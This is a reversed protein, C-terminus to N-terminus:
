ASTNGRRATAREVASRRQQLSQEYRRFEKKMARDARGQSIRNLVVAVGAVELRELLQAARDLEQKTTTSANVVLVTADVVRALYETNASIPLPDADILVVDCQDGANHLAWIVPDPTPAEREVRYGPYEHVTTRLAINFSRTEDAKNRGQVVLESRPSADSRHADLGDLGSAMITKTRLNLSHLSDNLKRVVTSTGGGHAPSTFLFTRAGSSRVAHDIGAALRFYYEGSIEPRFKDDDLLIGLPHFGVVRQVDNPTYIKNDLLDIGVPAATACALSVLLLALLYIKMQSQEPGLPTQAMTSVHISGPSSSELELDRMRDGIEDYAKQLSDIEPGLEAARQFKPAVSSATHTNEGLEQTLKLEVMRTRVVDQRLKDELHAAAKGRLDNMQRDISSLEDKDKQYIPHDPRLGNMEEMLAAQRSNLTSRMGSLGPDAAITEDAATDLAASGGTGNGKLLAELQAEASERAMRATALQDRVKQLTSDYPNAAGQTSSITAVGLQRMLQAQEALRDDMEQQLRDKEQHLTSLRDNLGYFEENKAKEVYTDTVMKVTDALGNPSPGSLAISMEYTTGIRSVKLTKQLIQIEFPLAPGSRRRVAYPLKSIADEIIDYRTVTQIQDQFYSDYPLETESDGSLMKPFKPSIYVVSHSEYVPKAKKWLAYAGCGLLLLLVVLSVAWHHRLSGAVNIKPQVGGSSSGVRRPPFSPQSNSNGPTSNDPSSNLM